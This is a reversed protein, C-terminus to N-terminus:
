LASRSLAARLHGEQLSEPAERSANFRASRPLQSAAEDAVRFGRLRRRSLRPQPPRPQLDGAADPPPVCVGRLEGTHGRRGRGYPPHQM